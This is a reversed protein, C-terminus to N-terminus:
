YRFKSGHFFALIKFIQSALSRVCRWHLLMTRCTTTYDPLVSVCCHLLNHTVLVCLFATLLLTTATQKLKYKYQSLNTKHYLKLLFKTNMKSFCKYFLWSCDEISYFILKSFDQLVMHTNIMRKTHVVESHRRWVDKKM